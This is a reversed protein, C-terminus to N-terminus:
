ITPILMEGDFHQDVLSGHCLFSNISRISSDILYCLAIDERCVFAHLSRVLRLARLQSARGACEQDMIIPCMGLASLHLIVMLIVENCVVECVHRTNNDIPCNRICFTKQCIELFSTEISLNTTCPWQSSFLAHPRGGVRQISSRVCNVTTCHVQLACLKCEQHLLTWPHWKDSVM